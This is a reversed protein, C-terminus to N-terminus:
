KKKIEKRIGIISKTASNAIYPLFILSLILILILTWNVSKAIPKGINEMTPKVVADGVLDKAGDIYPKPDHIFAVLLAGGMLVGKHKWIFNAAPDGYKNIVGLLKGSKPTASFIGESELMGMRQANRRSVKTLAGAANDSYKAIMKEGIGPHKYMAKGAVEGYKLFIILSKERSAIWVAEDANKAFFKLLKPADDGAYELAEVGVHGTRRIFPIAEDGYKLSYRVLTESIEHVSKGAVGKGFRGFILEATEEVGERVLRTTPGASLKVSVTLLSLIVIIIAASRKM